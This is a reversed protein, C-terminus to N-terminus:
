WISAKRFIGARSPNEIEKDTHRDIQRHTEGDTQTERERYINKMYIYIYLGRETSDTAM